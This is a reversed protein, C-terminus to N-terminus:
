ESVCVGDGGACGGIAGILEGAEVFPIGGRSPMVDDLTILYNLGGQIGNEVAKTERWYKASARAKHVALDDAALQAGTWANLPSLTPM